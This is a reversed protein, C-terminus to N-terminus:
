HHVAPAPAPPHAVSVAPSLATAHSSSGTLSSSSAPAPSLATAHSSTAAVLVLLVGLLVAWMAVRDPKFGAREHRRESPRRRPRRSAYILNREAGRSQIKVTRRGPVGQGPLTATATATTRPVQRDPRVERDPRPRSGGQAPRGPAEIRSRTPAIAGTSVPVGRATSGPARAGPRTPGGLAPRGPAVRSRTPAIARSHGQVGEDPPAPVSPRARTPTATRTTEEWPATEEWLLGTEEWERDSWLDDPRVPVGPQRM